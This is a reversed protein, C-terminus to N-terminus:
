RRDKANKAQFKRIRIWLFGVVYSLGLPFLLKLVLVLHPNLNGTDSFFLFLGTLTSITAIFLILVQLSNVKSKEERTSKQTFFLVKVLNQQYQRALRRHDVPHKDKDDVIESYRRMAIKVLNNKLIFGVYEKHFDDKGLDTELRQWLEAEKALLAPDSAPSAVATNQNFSQSDM